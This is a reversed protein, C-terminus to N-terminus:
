RNEKVGLKELAKRAAPAALPDSFMANGRLEKLKEVAPLAAPGIEGLAEAAAAQVESEPGDLLKILSPVAEKAAPGLKGLCKATAERSNTGGSRCLKVLAPIDSATPGVLLLSEVAASRVQANKDTLATRIDAAAKALDGGMSALAVKALLAFEPYKGGAIAEVDAKVPAAQKGAAALARLAAIRPKTARDSKAMTVLKTLAEPPIPNLKGIAKAATARIDQESDGLAALLAKGVEKSAPDAVAVAAIVRERQIQSASKQGVLSLLAPLAPKAGPGMAALADIFQDRVAEEKEDALAKGLAEAAPAAAPGLKELVSGLRLRVPELPDTALKGVDAAVKTAEAPPLTGVLGIAAFRAYANETNKLQKLADPILPKGLEGLRPIAEIGYRAAQGDGEIARKVTAVAEEKAEGIRCLAVAAEVAVDVFKDKLAEKLKDAAAKAPSGIEGLTQAAYARVIVNGHKLLGATPTVAPEGIAALARWYATDSGPEYTMFAPDFDEPYSNKIAEVLAATSPAAKPGATALAAAAATRVTAETDGLASVLHPVAEAPVNELSPALEAALRIVNRNEDTLLKAFGAADTIGIFRLTDFAVGRVSADSSTCLKMVDASLPKGLPGLLGVTFATHERVAPDKDNLSERLVAFGKEKLAAEGKPGALLLARVAAERVSTIQIPHTKGVGTNAKDKLLEVLSTITEPDSDVWVSLEEVAEQKTKQNSSKLDGLWKARDRATTDVPEDKKDGATDAVPAPPKKSCGVGLGLLLAFLILHRM